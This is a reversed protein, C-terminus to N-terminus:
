EYIVIQQFTLLAINVHKIIMFFCPFFLIHQKIEDMFKSFITLM